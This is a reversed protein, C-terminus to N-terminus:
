AGHGSRVFLGAEGGNVRKEIVGGQAVQPLAVPSVDNAIGDAGHEVFRTLRERGPLEREGIGVRDGVLHKDADGRRPGKESWDDICGSDEEM